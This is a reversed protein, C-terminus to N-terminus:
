QVLQRAIPRCEDCVSISGDSFPKVTEKAEGCGDCIREASAPVSLMEQLQMERELLALHAQHSIISM